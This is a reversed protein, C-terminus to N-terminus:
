SGWLARFGALLGAKSTRLALLSLIFAGGLLIRLLVPRVPDIVEADTRAAVLLVGGCVVLLIVLKWWVVERLVKVHRLAAGIALLLAPYGWPGYVNTQLLIRGSIEWGITVTGVLLYTVAAFVSNRDHLQRVNLLLVALSTVVGFELWLSTTEGMWRFGSGRFESSMSANKTLQFAYRIEPGLFFLDGGLSRNYLGCIVTLLAFGATGGVAYRTFDRVRTGSHPGALALLPVSFVFLVIPIHTYLAMGFFWGAAIGWSAKRQSYAAEATAGVFLSIWAVGAATVYDHSLVGLFATSCCFLVTVITAVRAQFLRACFWFVGAATLTLYTFFKVANLTEYDIRNGLFIWPILAPFRYVQYPRQWDYIDHFNFQLGFFYWSDCNFGNAYGIEPNLLRAFAAFLVCGFVTLVGVSTTSSLRSRM